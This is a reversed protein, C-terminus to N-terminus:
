RGTRPSSSPRSAFSRLSVAARGPPRPPWTELPVSHAQAQVGRRAMM